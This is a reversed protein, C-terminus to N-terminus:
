KWFKFKGPDEGFRYSIYVLASTNMISMITFIIPSREAWLSLLLAELTIFAGFIVWGQWTASYWGWGYKKAKFFITKSNSINNTLKM